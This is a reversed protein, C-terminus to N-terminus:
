LLSGITAAPSSNIYVVQGSQNLLYYIDLYGSPDYRLTAAESAQGFTWDPNAAGQGAYTQIFSAMSPGAQGLDNYMELEVVRVGDARLQSIHSAMIQTGAECSSCWTSVFWVLTPRGRLSAISVTAGQLTSFSANPAITGVAPAGRAVNGSASNGSPIGRSLVVGVIVIVALFAAGATWWHWRPTGKKKSHSLPAGREERRRQANSM